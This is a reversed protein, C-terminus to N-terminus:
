FDLRMTFTGGHLCLNGGTVFKGPTFDDVFFLDGNADWWYNFDYSVAFDIYWNSNDFHSGWGLGLGADMNPRVQGYGKDDKVSGLVRDPSVGLILTNFVPCTEKKETDFDMYLLSAAVDGFLRFGCGLLWNTNVGLRAGVSWSDFKSYVSDNGVPVFETDGAVITPVIIDDYSANYSQRFWAGRVGAHTRFTLKKGVYYTRGLNLDITNYILKWSLTARQSSVPVKPFVLTPYIFGGAPALSAAKNHSVLHTWEAYIDWNDREFDIGAGIKVGPHWDFDSNLVVGDVPPDGVLSGGFANLATPSFNSTVGYALGDERAQWYLFDATFYFDWSNCVDVSATANYGGMLCSDDRPICCPKPPYPQCQTLIPEQKKNNKIKPASFATTASLLAVLFPLTRIFKRM